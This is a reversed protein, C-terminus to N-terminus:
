RRTIHTDPRVHRLFRQYPQPVAFGREHLAALLGHELATVRHLHGKFGAPRHQRFVVRRETGAATIIDLGFVNASVGGTLERREVLRGGPELRAVAQEIAASVIGASADV